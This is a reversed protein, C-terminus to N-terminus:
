SKSAACKGNPLCAQNQKCCKSGCCHEGSTTKCATSGCCEKGITACFPKIGATVCCGKGNPCTKGTPCAGPGPNAARASEIGLTALIGGAVLGGLRRLAQRRPMESALIRAAQDLFKDM